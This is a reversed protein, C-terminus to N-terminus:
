GELPSRQIGLQECSDTVSAWNWLTQCESGAESPELCALSASVCALLFRLACVGVSLWSFTSHGRLLRCRPLNEKELFPLSYVRCLCLSLKRKRQSLTETLGPGGVVDQTYLRCTHAGAQNRHHKHM